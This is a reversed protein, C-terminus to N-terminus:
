METTGIVPATKISPLAQVYKQNDDQIIGHLHNHTELNKTVGYVNYLKM